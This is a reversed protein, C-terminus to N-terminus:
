KGGKQAELLYEEVDLGLKQAQKLNEEALKYDKRNLYIMGLNKYPQPLKPNMDLVKEYLEVAKDYQGM